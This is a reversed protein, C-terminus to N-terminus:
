QIERSLSDIKTTVRDIIGNKVMLAKIFDKADDQLKKNDKYLEKNNNELKTIREEQKKVMTRLDKCEDGRTFEKYVFYMLLVYAVVHVPNRLFQGYRPIKELM